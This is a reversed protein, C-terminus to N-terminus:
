VNLNAKKLETKIKMPQFDGREYIMRTFGFDIEREISTDGPLLIRPGKNKTKRKKVGNRMNNVHNTIEGM